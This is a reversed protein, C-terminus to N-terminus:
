KYSIYFDQMRKFKKNKLDNKILNFIKYHIILMEKKDLRLYRMKKILYGNHILNKKIKIRSKSYNLPKLIIQGKNSFIKDSIITLNLKFFFSIEQLRNNITILTINKPGEHFIHILFSILNSNIKNQKQILIKFHNFKIKHAFLYFLLLISKSTNQFFKSLKFRKGTELYKRLHNSSVRKKVRIPYLGRSQLSSGPTEHDDDISAFIEEKLYGINLPLWKLKKSSKEFGFPTFKSWSNYDNELIIKFFLKKKIISGYSIIFKNKFIKNYNKKYIKNYKFLSTQYFKNKNSSIKYPSTYNIIDIKKDCVEYFLKKLKKKKVNIFDELWCFIYNFEIKNLICYSDHYWGHDSSINFLNKVGKKKFFKISEASYKGRINIIYDFFIKNDYISNFSDKMRLYNEFNDVFINGFFVIKNKM